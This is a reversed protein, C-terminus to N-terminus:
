ATTGMLKGIHASGEMLATEAMQIDSISTLEGFRLSWDRHLTSNAIAVVGNLAEILSSRIQIQFKVFQLRRWAKYPDLTEEAFLSRGDWGISVTSRLVIDAILQRQKTFDFGPVLSVLTSGRLTQQDAAEWAAIAARVDRRLARPLEV